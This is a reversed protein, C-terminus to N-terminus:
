MPMFTFHSIVAPMGYGYRSLTLTNNGRLLRVAIANSRQPSTGVTSPTVIVGQTHGNADVVFLDCGDTITYSVQLLYTGGREVNVKVTVTDAQLASDAIAVDLVPYHSVIVPRSPLSFGYRNAAVVNFETLQGTHPLSFISDSISYSREGNIVLKYGLGSLWPSISCSDNSWVVDPADPLYANGAITTKNSGRKGQELKILINHHGNIYSPIYGGEVVQGDLTMLKIDNGTGVITIDLTADRYPLNLLTKNGPMCAPITPSFEIGDPTFQLGLMVRLVMAVNAAACSLYNVPRGDISLHHPQYLAQARYLAGLGRRLAHENDVIAAAVNWCAQTMSWSPYELHPEICGQHPYTPYVGLHGVPTSEILTAARDNDALNWMVALAQATNDTLPAQWRSVSGMLYASYRSRSEDWLKQNIAERLRTAEQEYPPDEGLEEAMDGAVEMARVALVNNILTETETLDVANMWHPYFDGNNYRALQGGHMLGDHQDLQIHLEEDITNLTVLYAEELWYPDGTTCYVEWAAIPWGMRDDCMPWTGQRQMVVDDLVQNRLTTMAREPNIVALSMFISGYLSSHDDHSNFGGSQSYNNAIDDISLNYLVDILPQQSQYQPYDEHSTLERSDRGWSLCYPVTDCGALRQLSQEAQTLSLDNALEYPSPAWVTVDTTVVSDGNVWFEDNQAIVQNSMSQKECCALGIIALLAMAIYWKNQM